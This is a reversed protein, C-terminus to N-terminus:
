APASTGPVTKIAKLKAHWDGVVNWRHNMMENKVEDTRAQILSNIEVFVGPNVPGDFNCRVKYHDLKNIDRWPKFLYFFAEAPFFRRHTPDQFARNSRCCPTIIEIWGDPVLIRHCEDFFRFFLDQGEGFPVQNGFEDVEIMPLHEIFHSCRLELVSNDAWPWPFKFLNVAHKVGPVGPLDVGEFGAACSQGCALDLKLTPSPATLEPKKKDTRRVMRRAMKKGSM